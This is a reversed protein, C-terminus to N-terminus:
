ENRKTKRRPRQRAPGQGVAGLVGAAGANEQAGTAGSAAGQARLLPDRQQWRWCVCDHGFLKKTSKTEKVKEFSIFKM